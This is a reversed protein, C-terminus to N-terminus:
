RAEGNNKEGQNKRKREREELWSKGDEWTFGKMKLFLVAANIGKKDYSEFFQMRIGNQFKAPNKRKEDERQQLAIDVMLSKFCRNGRQGPNLDKFPRGM